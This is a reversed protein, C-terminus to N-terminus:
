TLQTLRGQTLRTLAWMMDMPQRGVVTALVRQDGPRLARGSLVLRPALRCVSRVPLRQRRPVLVRRAVGVTPRVPHSALVADAGRQQEPAYCYM